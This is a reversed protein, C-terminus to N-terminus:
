MMRYIYITQYDQQNLGLNYHQPKPVNDILLYLVQVSCIRLFLKLHLFIWWGRHDIHPVQDIDM